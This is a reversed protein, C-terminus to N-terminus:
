WLMKQLSKHFISYLVQVDRSALRSPCMTMYGLTRLMDYFVLMQLCLTLFLGQFCRIVDM